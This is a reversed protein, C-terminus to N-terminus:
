VCDTVTKEPFVTSRKYTHCWYCPISMTKRGIFQGNPVFMVLYSLFFHQLMNVIFIFLTNQQGGGNLAKQALKGGRHQM